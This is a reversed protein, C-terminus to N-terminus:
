KFLHKFEDIANIYLADLACVIVTKLDTPSNSSLM